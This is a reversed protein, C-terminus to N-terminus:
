LLANSLLSVCGLSSAAHRSVRIMHQSKPALMEIVRVQGRRESKGPRTVEGPVIVGTLANGYALAFDSPSKVMLKAIQSEMLGNPIM